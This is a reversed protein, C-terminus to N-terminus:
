YESYSTKDFYILQHKKDILINNIIQYKQRNYSQLIM